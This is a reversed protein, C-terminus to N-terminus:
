TFYYFSYVFKAWKSNQAYENDVNMYIKLLLNILDSGDNAPAFFSLFLPDDSLIGPIATATDPLKISRRVRDRVIEFKDKIATIQTKYPEPLTFQLEMLFNNLDIIGYNNDPTLDGCLARAEGIL